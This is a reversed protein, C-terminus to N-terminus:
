ARSALRAAVATISAVIAVVIWFGDGHQALPKIREQLSSMDRLVVSFEGTSQRLEQIDLEATWRPPHQLISVARCARSCTPAASPGALLAIRRSALAQPSAQGVALRRRNLGGQFHRQPRHRGPCGGQQAAAAGAARGGIEPWGQTRRAAQRHFAPAAPPRHRGPATHRLNVAHLHGLARVFVFHMDNIVAVLADRRARHQRFAVRGVARRLFTLTGPVWREDLRHLQSGRPEAITLASVFTDSILRNSITPKRPHRRRRAM